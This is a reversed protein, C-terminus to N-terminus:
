NGEKAGFMATAYNLGIAYAGGYRVATAFTAAMNETRAWDRQLELLYQLATMPVCGAQVMRNCSLVHAETSIDGCADAIFYVEFDQEVACLAPMAVCVSTWLGCIVVKQKGIANVKDVVRSDEWANMTTRDITPEDPFAETIVSFLPGSFTKESVTTLITPVKFGSAASAVMGTNNVLNVTDISKTAFAMQSQHDIMVLLHNDSSILNRSPNPSAIAM